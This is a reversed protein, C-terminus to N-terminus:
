FQHVTLSSTAASGAVAMGFVKGRTQDNIRDAQMMGDLILRAVLVTSLCRNRTNQMTWPGGGVVPAAVDGKRDGADAGRPAAVLGAGAAPFAVAAGGAAAAGGPGFRTKTYQIADRVLAQRASVRQDMWETIKSIVDFISGGAAMAMLVYFLMKLSPEAAHSIEHGHELLRLEKRIVEFWADESTEMMPATIVGARDWDAATKKMLEARSTWRDKSAWPDRNFGCLQLPRLNILEDFRTRYLYPQVRFPQMRFKDVEYGNPKVATQQIVGDKIGVGDCQKGAVLDGPQFDETRSINGIEGLGHVRVALGVHNFNPNDKQEVADFPEGVVIGLPRLAACETVTRGCLDTGIVVSPGYNMSGHRSRSEKPDIFAIEGPLVSKNVAKGAGGYVLTSTDGSSIAKEAADSHTKRLYTKNPIAQINTSSQALPPERRDGGRMQNPFLRIGSAKETRALADKYAPHDGLPNFGRLLADSMETEISLSRSSLSTPTISLSRQTQEYFLFNLNFALQQRKFLM